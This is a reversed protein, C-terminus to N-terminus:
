DDNQVSFIIKHIAYGALGFILTVKIVSLLTFTPFGDFKIPYSLINYCFQFLLLLTDM